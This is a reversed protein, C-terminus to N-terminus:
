FRGSLAELSIVRNSNETCRSLPFLVLNFIMKGSLREGNQMSNELGLKLPMVDKM